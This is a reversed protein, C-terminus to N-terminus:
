PMGTQNALLQNFSEATNRALDFIGTLEAVGVRDNQGAVHYHGDGLTTFRGICQGGDLQGLLGTGDYETNDIRDAAADGAQGVRSGVDM